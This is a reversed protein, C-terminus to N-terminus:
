GVHGLRSHWLSTEDKNFVVNVKGTHTSGQLFYLKGLKKAKLVTRCGKKVKLIGDGGDFTCSQMM